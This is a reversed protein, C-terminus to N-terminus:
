FVDEFIGCFWSIRVSSRAKSCWIKWCDTSSWHELRVDSLCTGSDGGGIKLM